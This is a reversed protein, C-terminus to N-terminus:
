FMGSEEEWRRCRKNNIIVFSCLVISLYENAVDSCSIGLINAWFFRKKLWKQEFFKKKSNTGDHETTMWFLFKSVYFNWTWKKLPVFFIILWCKQWFLKRIEFRFFELDSFNVRERLILSQIAWFPLVSWKPSLPASFKKLESIKFCNNYCTVKWPFSPLGPRSTLYPSQHDFPQSNLDWGDPYWISWKLVKLLEHPKYLGLIFPFSAPSPGNSFSKRSSKSRLNSSPLFYKWFPEM